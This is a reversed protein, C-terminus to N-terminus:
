FSDQSSQDVLTTKPEFDDCTNNAWKFPGPKKGGKIDSEKVRPKTCDGWSYDSSVLSGKVFHKCNICVSEM